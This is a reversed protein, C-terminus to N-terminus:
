RVLYALLTWRSCRRSAKRAEFIMTSRVNAWGLISTWVFVSTASTRPSVLTSPRRIRSVADPSSRSSGISPSNMAMPCLGFM